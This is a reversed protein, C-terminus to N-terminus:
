IIEDYFGSDDKNGLEGQGCELRITNYYEMLCGM